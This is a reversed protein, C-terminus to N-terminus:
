TMLQLALPKDQTRPPMRQSGLTSSLATEGSLARCQRLTVSLPCGPADYSVHHCLEGRSGVSPLAQCCRPGQRLDSIGGLLPYGADRWLRDLSTAAQLEWFTANQGRAIAVAQCLDREAAAPDGEANLLEGRLRHLEAYDWRDESTELIHSAETLCNLGEVAQGYM